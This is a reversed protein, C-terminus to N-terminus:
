ERVVEELPLQLPQTPSCFSRAMTWGNQHPDPWLKRWRSHCLCQVHIDLKRSFSCVCARACVCVCMSVCVCECVYCAMLISSWLSNKSWPWYKLQEETTFFSWGVISHSKWVWVSLYIVYFWGSMITTYLPCFHNIHYDWTNEVDSLLFVLVPSISPDSLVTPHPIQFFILSTQTQPIMHPQSGLFLM